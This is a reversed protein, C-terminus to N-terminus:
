TKEMWEGLPLTHMPGINDRCEFTAVHEWGPLVFETPDDDNEDVIVVAERDGNKYHFIVYTELM